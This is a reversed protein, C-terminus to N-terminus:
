IKNVTGSESQFSKSYVFAQVRVLMSLGSERKESVVVNGESSSQHYVKFVSHKYLVKSESEGRAVHNAKGFGKSM